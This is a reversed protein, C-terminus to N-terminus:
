NFSKIDEVTHDGSPPLVELDENEREDLGYSHSEKGSSSMVSNNTGVCVSVCM